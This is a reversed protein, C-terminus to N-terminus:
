RLMELAQDFFDVDGFNGSKLALVIPAAGISETWPVGPSIEPGIRLASVGLATVVAGSTEGGAAILRDVGKDVLARALDGLTTELKEGVEMGGYQAQLASVADPDDSSYILVPTKGLHPEAWAIAEAAVPEDRMVAHPDLKLAPFKAEWAAVQERTRISCSGALVAEPGKQPPLRPPTAAALLGAARYNEPLGRAIGSGGTILALDRSAAGIAMLDADDIADVVAHRVGDGHLAEFAEEIAAPGQTVTAHDVLGVRHPTQRGLVRVLNADTMPTLPHNRMGSESLLEDGVFLNGKYITRGNTPFAPGAITFESGLAQLLADGVPGINGDDM